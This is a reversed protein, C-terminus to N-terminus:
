QSAALQMTKMGDGPLNPDLFVYQGAQVDVKPPVGNTEFFRYGEALNQWFGLWKSNRYWSLNKETMRFPFVHIPVEDQGTELAAEVVSYIEDIRENTMAYCGSSGCSGHIM